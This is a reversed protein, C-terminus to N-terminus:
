ETSKILSNIAAYGFVGVLFHATQRPFYNKQSSTISLFFITTGTAIMLIIARILYNTRRKRARIRLLNIYDKKIYSTMKIPNHLDRAAKKQEEAVTHEQEQRLKELYSIDSALKKGLPTINGKDHFIPLELSNGSNISDIIDTYAEESDIPIRAKKM